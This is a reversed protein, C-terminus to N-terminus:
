DLEVKFTKEGLLGEIEKKIGSSDSVLFSTMVKKLGEPKKLVLYVKNRGPYKNLIAKM